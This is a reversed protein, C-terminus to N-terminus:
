TSKLGVKKGYKNFKIQVLKHNKLYYMVRGAIYSESRTRYIMGITRGIANNRLDMRVDWGSRGQEHATAFRYAFTSGMYKTMLANWLAHRFADIHNSGATRNKWGYKLATWAFAKISAKYALYAQKPFLISLVKEQRTYTGEPDMGMIPNNEVYVYGNQTLPVEDSGTVPDKTLFRGLKADYYRAQLYYLGTVEDFRYGAYRYPNEVTGTEGILNGFADYNYTKVVSGSSNTLTVVDGHGNLQYYYTQGGRTM